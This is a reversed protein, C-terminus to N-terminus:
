MAYHNIEFCLSIQTQIIDVILCKTCMRTDALM